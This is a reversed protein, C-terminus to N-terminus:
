TSRSIVRSQHLQGQPKRQKTIRKEIKGKYKLPNQTM